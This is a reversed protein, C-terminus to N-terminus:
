KEGRTNLESERMVTKVRAIQRRLQRFQSNDEVHDTVAKYRLDFLEKELEELERQLEEGTKERLERILRSM